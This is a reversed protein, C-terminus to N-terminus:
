CRTNKDKEEDMVELYITFTTGMNPESEVEIKGKHQEIIGHVVPLGLGVGKGKEKTTFFPTFLKSLNEKPIGIGTDKIDIRVTDKLFQNIKINKAVSTAITLNGGDPMAQIANMIINILVQQIKDFDALVFPLETDLEKDLKINELSIQHGVLLLAAEVVKNIEVPRIAPESQRAFDLLNRIIRTTRDLEKEMKLLQEETNEAQLKKEKHKKLLLKIYVLIGALPNNVEHAVSAALQGLSVLKESRILEEETQKRKTIDEGSSLTGIINDKEDILTTNHWAIVREEGSKILISNEYDEAEQIKGAMVKKFTDKREKKEAEPVCLDFWNKGIIDEERYGLVDCGKKNILTVIGKDNIAVIIVGAINLYQQARNREERLKGWLGKHKTLDRFNEVAGIIENNSSRLPSTTINVPIKNGMKSTIMIEYNFVIKGTKLIGELPCSEECLDSKLIHCCEKNLVEERKFGTIEEASRNFSTIRANKDVTLVGGDMSELINELFEKTIEDEQRL